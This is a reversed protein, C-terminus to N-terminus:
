RNKQAENRKATQEADFTLTTDSDRRYVQGAVLTRGEGVPMAQDIGVYSGDALGGNCLVMLTGASEELRAQLAHEVDKVAAGQPGDRAGKHYKAALQQLQELTDSGAAPEANRRMAEAWPQPAAAKLATKLHKAWAHVMALGIGSSQGLMEEAVENVADHLSM